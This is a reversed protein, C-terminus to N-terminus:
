AWSPIASFPAFVPARRSIGARRRTHATATGLPSRPAPAGASGSADPEHARPREGLVLVGTSQHSFANGVNILDDAKIQVKEKITVVGADAFAGFETDGVKAKLKAVKKNGIKAEKQAKSKGPAGALMLSVGTLALDGTATYAMKLDGRTANSLDIPFGDTLVIVGYTSLDKNAKGSKVEASFGSFTITGDGSDFSAGNALDLLSLAPSARAGGLALCLGAGLMLM